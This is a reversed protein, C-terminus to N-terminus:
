GWSVTVRDAIIIVGVRVRGDNDCRQTVTNHAANDVLGFQFPATCSCDPLAAM